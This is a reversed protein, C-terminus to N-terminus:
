RDPHLGVGQGARGAGRHVAPPRGCRQADGLSALRPSVAWRHRWKRVTDVCSAVAAAIAANSRGGAALLVIRARLVLRQATGGARVLETLEERQAKTLVVVDPSSVGMTM